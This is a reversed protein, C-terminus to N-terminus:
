PWARHLDRAQDPPTKIDYRGNVIVAPAHRIRDAGALPGEEPLSGRSSIYHHMIRAFTLITADDLDPPPVAPAHERGTGRRGIM